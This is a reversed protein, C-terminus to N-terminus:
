ESFEITEEDSAEDVTIEKEYNLLVRLDDVTIFVTEERNDLKVQNALLNLGTMRYTKDKYRIQANMKPLGKRLETYISDENKLCCMLKGCQGSLKQINLALLQNKAMNISIVDFDKMYRSCCTESGCTGLGGIMKAKDRPGVQRLEIRCRLASSLEKLLERFDVREESVYVFLIKSRELNYSASILNMNLALKNICKQCINWAEEAHTENEKSALIDQKTAKRIIVKLEESRHNENILRVSSAVKALELGHLSEVVAFDDDEWDIIDTAFTYSKKSTNFRVDIVHIYIKDM